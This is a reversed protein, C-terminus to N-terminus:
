IYRESRVAEGARNCVTVTAVMFGADTLAIYVSEPHVESPDTTTILVDM